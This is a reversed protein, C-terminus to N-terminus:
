KGYHYGKSNPNFKENIFEDEIENLIKFLEGSKWKRKNEETLRARIKCLIIEYDRM